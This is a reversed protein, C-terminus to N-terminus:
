AARKQTKRVPKDKADKDDKPVLALPAPKRKRKTPPTPPTPEPAPPGMHPIRKMVGTGGSFVPLFDRENPDILVPTCGRTTPYYGHLADYTMLPMEDPKQEGGGGLYGAMLLGIRKTQVIRNGVIRSSVLPVYAETHRHGMVAVDCEFRGLLRELELAHGGALKGGGYGHTIFLHMNWGSGVAGTSAVRRFSLNVFGRYGLAISPGPVGKHQAVHKVIQRYLGAGQFQDPAGEHNGSVVAIVKKCLAATLFEDRLYDLQAQLVDDKGWLWPALTSELHRKDGKRNIADILDGGLTVIAAPDDTAIKIHRKLLTEDCGRAGVHLDTLHYWHFEDSRSHYAIRETILNV